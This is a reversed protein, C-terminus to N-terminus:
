STRPAEPLRLTSTFFEIKDEQLIAECTGEVPPEAGMEKFADGSFMSVWIVRVGVGEQHGAVQHDRSEVHFGPILLEVFGARIQEKGTYVGGSSDPPPPELRVIAEDDFFAMVGEVDHANWAADFDKLVAVPDAMSYERRGLGSEGAPSIETDAHHCLDLGRRMGLSSAGGSLLYTPM